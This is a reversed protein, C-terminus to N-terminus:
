RVPALAPTPAPAPLPPLGQYWERANVLHFNRQKNGQLDVGLGLVGWKAYLAGQPQGDAVHLRADLDIRRNSAHLKDVTFSDGAFSVRATAQAQGADVLNGVWKPFASRESFLDLLVSVDKMQLRADGQLRFPRQWQLSGRDLSLKAWWPPDGPEGVRVQDLKLDLADIRYDRGGRGIQSIRTDVDLDGTIRSPGLVVQAQKGRLRLRGQQVRGQADLKLDAGLTGSGGEFRLSKGPLNRNYAQLRPIRADSFDLKAQLTRRFQALDESAVLNLKFNEGQVYPEALAERPALKFQRAVFDVTTRQGEVKATAQAQATLVTDFLDAQFQARPITARSGAVLRGERLRLQADVDAQGDLRLWDNKSLLPNMWALTRFHWRLGIQGSTKRLLDQASILQVEREAVLLDADIFDTSDVRAPVSARVAIGNDQVTAHLQLRAPRPDTQGDQLVLPASWALRGGPVLVGNDMSLDADVRGGSRGTAFELFDSDGGAISLGPARGSLQLRADVFRVRAMGQAQAHTSPAMTMEFDLRARRALVTDGYSVRASRAHLSSPLIEFPGQRLTKGLAFSAHADELQDVHWDALRLSRLSDTTIADFHLTWAPTKRHSQTPALYPVDRDLVFVVHDARITGFSVRRALLPLLKIRGRAEPSLTVWGNQRAHGGLRLKSAHIHGPYLSYASAWEIHFREPKPNFARVALSSNLFLNAALLYLLEVVVLVLATRILGRRHSRLWHLFLPM